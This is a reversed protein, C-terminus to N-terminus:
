LAKRLIKESYIENVLLKSPTKFFGSPINPNLDKGNSDKSPKIV